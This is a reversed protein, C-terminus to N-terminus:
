LRGGTSNASHSARHLAVLKSDSSAIYASGSDGSTTVVKELRIGNKWFSYGLSGKSRYRYTISEIKASRKAESKGGYVVITEGKKPSRLGKVKGIDKVEQSSAASSSDCWAVDKEQYIPDKPNQSDYYEIKDFGSVKALRNKESAEDPQYVWKGVSDNKAIVHNNSLIRYKGRYSISTALSGRGKLGDTRVLYGGPCPRIRPQHKEAEYEGSGEKRSMNYEKNPVDRDYDDDLLEDEVTETVKRVKTPIHVAEQVMGDSGIATILVMPPIEIIKPLEGRSTKISAMEELIDERLVEVLLHIGMEGSESNEVEEIDIGVVNDYTLWETFRDLIHNIEEESLGIHETM